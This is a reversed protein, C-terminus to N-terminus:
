ALSVSVTSPFCTETLAAGMYAACPKYVSFWRALDQLQLTTLTFTVQCAAQLYHILAVVTRLYCLM